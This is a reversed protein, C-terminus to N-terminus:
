KSLNKFWRIDWTGSFAVAVSAVAFAAASLHPAVHPFHLLVTAEVLPVLGRTVDL